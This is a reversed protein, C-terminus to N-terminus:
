GSSDKRYYSDLFAEGEDTAATAPVKGIAEEIARFVETAVGLRRYLDDVHIWEVFRFPEM